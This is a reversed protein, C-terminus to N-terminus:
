LELCLTLFVAKAFETEEVSSVRIYVLEMEARSMVKTTIFLKSLPPFCMSYPSFHLVKLSYHSRLTCEQQCQVVTELKVM